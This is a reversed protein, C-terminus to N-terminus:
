NLTKIRTISSNKPRIIDLISNTEKRIYEDLTYRKRLLWRRNAWANAALVINHATLFTDEVEFEGTAAGEMLLRNFYNVKTIEREFISQRFERSATWVIHNHFNYVDQLRDVSRFYIDISMKLADTYRLGSTKESLEKLLDDQASNGWETTMWLIDEKSGVYRYLAGVTLGIERAIERVSSQEFGKTMFLKTSAMVIEQRRKSVLEQNKVSTQIIKGM